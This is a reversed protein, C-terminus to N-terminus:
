VPHHKCDAMCHTTCKEMDQLKEFPNPNTEINCKLDEPKPISPGNNNQREKYVKKMYDDTIKSFDLKNKTQKPKRFVKFEAKIIQTGDINYEMECWSLNDVREGTEQNVVQLTDPDSPDTQVIGLKM